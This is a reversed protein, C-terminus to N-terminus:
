STRHDKQWKSLAQEYSTPSYTRWKSFQVGEVPTPVLQVGNTERSFKRTVEFKRLILESAGAVSEGIYNESTSRLVAAVKGKDSWRKFDPPSVKV